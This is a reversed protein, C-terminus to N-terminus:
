KAVMASRHLFSPNGLASEGFFHKEDIENFM